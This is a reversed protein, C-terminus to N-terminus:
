SRTGFLRRDRGSNFFTPHFCHGTALTQNKASSLTGLPLGSAKSFQALDLYKVMVRKLEKLRGHPKDLMEFSLDLLHRQESYGTALVM